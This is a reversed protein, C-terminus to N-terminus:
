ILDSINSRLKWRLKVKRQRESESNQICSKQFIIM